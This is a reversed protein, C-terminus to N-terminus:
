GYKSLIKSLAALNERNETTLSEGFEHEIRCAVMEFFAKDLAARAAALQRAIEECSQEENIMAQIGRIQGEVRKLRAVMSSKHQSFANDGGQAPKSKAMM